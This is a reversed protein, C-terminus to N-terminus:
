IKRNSFIQHWAIVARQDDGMAARAGIRRLIRQRRKLHRAFRSSVADFKIDPERLVARWDDNVVAVEFPERSSGILDGSERCRFKCAYVDPRVEVACMWLSRPGFKFADADRCEAIYEGKKGVRFKDHM